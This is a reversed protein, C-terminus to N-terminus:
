YYYILATKKLWIRNLDVNFSLTHWHKKKGFIMDNCSNFLQDSCWIIIVCTMRYHSIYTGCRLSVTSGTYDSAQTKRCGTVDSLFEHDWLIIYTIQFLIQNNRCGTGDSKNWSNLLQLSMIKPLFFCQCVKDNLAMVYSPSRGLKTCLDAVVHRIIDPDYSYMLQKTWFQNKL